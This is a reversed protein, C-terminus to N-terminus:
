RGCRAASSASSRRRGAASRAPRRRARDHPHQDRTAAHRIRGDGLGQRQQAPLAPRPGRREGHLHRAHQRGRHAGVGRRAQRLAPHPPDPPPSAPRNDSRDHLGRHATHRHASHDTLATRARETRAKAPAAPPAPNEDLGKGLPRRLDVHGALTDVQPRGGPDAGVQHGAPQDHPRRRHHLRHAARRALRGPARRARRPQSRRVGRRSRHTVARAAEHRRPIASVLPAPRRRSSRRSSTGRRSTPTEGFAGRARRRGAPLGDDAVYYLRAKIKASPRRRPRRPPPPCPPRRRPRRTAPMAGRCSSSSSGPWCASSRRWRPQRWRDVAHEDPARGGAPDPAAAPASPPDAPRRASADRFQLVADLLAQPPSARSPPRHRAPKEQAPNSSSASDRRPRGAHEGGDLVRLPAQELPHAREAARPRPVAAAPDDRSSRRSICTASRRWTGSSWSSTARAAASPRCGSRRRRPARERGGRGRRVRYCAGRRRAVAPRSRPTPTCASSSIPRTTTPSRRATTSRPAHRDDDRTLLM